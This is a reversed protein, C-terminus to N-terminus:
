NIKVSEAIKKIEPEFKRFDGVETGDLLQGPEYTRAYIVVTKEKAGLVYYREHVSTGDGDYTKEVFYGDYGNIKDNSTADGSDLPGDGYENLLWSQPNTNNKNEFVTVTFRFFETGNGYRTSLREDPFISVGEVCHATATPPAPCKNTDKEVMWKVPVEFTVSDDALTINKTTKQEEKTEQGSNTSTASNTEEPTKNNAQKKSHWAYWGVFGILAVVALILVAEIISFGEQKKYPNKM